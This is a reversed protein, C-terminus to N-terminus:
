LAKHFMSKECLKVYQLYRICDLHKENSQCDDFNIKM